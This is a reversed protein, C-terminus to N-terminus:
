LPSYLVYACFTTKHFICSFVYFYILICLFAHFNMVICSFVYFYIFICLVYVFICIFYMVFVFIYIYISLSLFLSLYMYFVYLFSIFVYICTNTLSTPVTWELQHSGKMLHAFNPCMSCPNAGPGPPFRILRSPGMRTWNPEFNSDIHKCFYMPGLPGYIFICVFVYFYWGWRQKKGGFLFFCNFKFAVGMKHPLWVQLVALGRGIERRQYIYIYKHKDHIKIYKQTHKHIKM